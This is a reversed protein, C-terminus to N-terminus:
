ACAHNQQSGFQHDRQENDKSQSNQVPSLVSANQRENCEDKDRAGRNASWLSQPIMKM